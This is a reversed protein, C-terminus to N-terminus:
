WCHGPSIWPFIDMLTSSMQCQKNIQNKRDRQLYFKSISEVREIQAAFYLVMRWCKPVSMAVFPFANQIYYFSRCTSKINQSCCQDILPVGFFCSGLDRTCGHELTWVNEQVWKTLFQLYSYANSKILELREHYGKSYM